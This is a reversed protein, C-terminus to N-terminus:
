DKNGVVFNKLFYLYGGDPQEVMFVGCAIQQELTQRACGGNVLGRTYTITPEAALRMM